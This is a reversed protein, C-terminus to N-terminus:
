FATKPHMTAKIAAERSKLQPGAREVIRLAEQTGYGGPLVSRAIVAGTRTVWPMIKEKPGGILMENRAALMAIRVAVTADPGLKGLDFAMGLDPLARRVDEPMPGDAPIHGTAVARAADVSYSSALIAAQRGIAERRRRASSFRAREPSVAGAHTGFIPELEASALELQDDAKFLGNEADAPETEGDALLTLERRLITLGMDQRIHARQVRVDLPELYPADELGALADDMRALANDFSGAKALILGAQHLSDVAPNVELYHPM